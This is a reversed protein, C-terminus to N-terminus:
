FLASIRAFALSVPWATKDKARGLVLQTHLVTLIASIPDLSEYSRWADYCSVSRLGTINILIM